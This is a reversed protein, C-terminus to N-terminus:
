WHFCINWIGQCLLQFSGSGTEWSFWCHLYFSCSRRSSSSLLVTCHSGSTVDARTIARQGQKSFTVNKISLLAPAYRETMFLIHIKWVLFHNQGMQEVVTKLCCLNGTMWMNCFSYVHVHLICRWYLLYGEILEDHNSCIDVCMHEWMCIAEEWEIM